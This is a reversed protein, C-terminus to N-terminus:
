FAREYGNFAENAIIQDAAARAEPNKEADYLDILKKLKPQGKASAKTDPSTRKANPYAVEAKKDKNKDAKREERRQAARDAATQAQAPVIATVAIVAAIAAALLSHRRSPLVTM